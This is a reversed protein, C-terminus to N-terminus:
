LVLRALPEHSSPSVVLTYLCMARAVSLAQLARAARHDGHRRSRGRARDGAEGPGCSRTRWGVFFSFLGLRQAISAVLPSRCRCSDTTYFARAAAVREAAHRFADTRARHAMM